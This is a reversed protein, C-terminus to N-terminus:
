SWPGYCCRLEGGVAVVARVSSGNFVLAKIVVASAPETETWRRPPAPRRRVAARPAAGPRV